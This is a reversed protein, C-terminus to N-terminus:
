GPELGRPQVDADPPLVIGLSALLNSAPGPGGGQASHAALLNQVLNLDVDVPGHGGGTDQGAGGLGAAAAGGSGGAGVGNASADRAHTVFDGGAAKDSLEADMLAMLERVSLMGDDEDSAVDAEEGWGEEGETDSGSGDEVEARGARYLGASGGDVGGLDDGTDEAFIKSGAGGM